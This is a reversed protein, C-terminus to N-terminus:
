PRIGNGRHECIMGGDRKNNLFVFALKSRRQRCAVNDTLCFAHQHFAEVDVGTTGECHEFFDRLLGIRRHPLKGDSQDVASSRVIVVGWACGHAVRCLLHCLEDSVATVTGGNISRIGLDLIGDSGGFV